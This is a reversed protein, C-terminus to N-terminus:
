PRRRQRAVGHSLLPQSYERSRSPPGSTGLRRGPPLFDRTRQTQGRRSDAGTRRPGRCGSPFLRAASTPRPGGQESRYHMSLWAEAKPRNPEGVTALGGVRQDRAHSRRDPRSALGVREPWDRARHSRRTRSHASLPDPWSAPQPIVCALKTSSERWRADTNKPEPGAVPLVPSRSTPTPQNMTATRHRGQARHHMSRSSTRILWRPAEHHRRFPPPDGRRPARQRWRHRM